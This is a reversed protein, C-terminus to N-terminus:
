VAGCSMITWVSFSSHGPQLAAQLVRLRRIKTVRREITLCSLYLRRVSGKVENPLAKWVKLLAPGSIPHNEAITIQFFVARPSDHEMIVVLSDIAPLNPQLPRMYVSDLERDFQRSNKELRFTGALKHRDFTGTMTDPCSRVCFKLTATSHTSIPRPAFSAGGKSLAIHVRVKFVWGAATSTSPHGLLLSYLRCAKQESYSISGKALKAAITPTIVRRMWSMSNYMQNYMQPAEPELLLLSHSGHKGLLILDAGTWSQVYEVIKAELRKKYGETRIDREKQNRSYLEELLLRPLPGYVYFQEWLIELEANDQFGSAAVIESWEWVPMYWVLAGSEKQLQKYIKREQLHHSL